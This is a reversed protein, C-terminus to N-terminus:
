LFKFSLKYINNNIKVCLKFNKLNDTNHLGPIYMYTHNHNIFETRVRSINYLKNPQFVFYNKFEQNYQEVRDYTLDFGFSQFYQKLKIIFTDISKDHRLIKPLQLEVCEILLISLIEFLISTDSEEVLELHISDPEQPEQSFIQQAINYINEM